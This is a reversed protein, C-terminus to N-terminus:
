KKVRSSSQNKKREGDTATDTTQSRESVRRAAAPPADKNHLQTPTQRPSLHHHLVATNTSGTTAFPTPFSHRIIQTDKAASNARRSTEQSIQLNHPLNQKRIIERPVHIKM